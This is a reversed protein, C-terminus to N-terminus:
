GGGGEDEVDCHTNTGTFLYTHYVQQATNTGINVWIGDRWEQLTATLEFGRSQDVRWYEVTHRENAPITWSWSTAQLTAKALTQTFANNGVNVTVVAVREYTYTPTTNSIPGM